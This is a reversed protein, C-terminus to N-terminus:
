KKGAGRLVEIMDKNGDKEAVQLPTMGNVLVDRKAGKALLVKVVDIQGNNTAIYIPTVGDERKAEVAAGKRILATVVDARGEQSAIWLPTVGWAKAEIDAGKELLFTVVEVQGKQAAVWLPTVGDDNKANVSAPDGAVLTRVKSMDGTEAASHIPAAALFSTFNLASLLTVIVRYKM